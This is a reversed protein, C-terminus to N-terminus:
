THRRFTVVTLIVSKVLTDFGDRLLFTTGIGEGSYGYAVLNINYISTSVGAEFAQATEDGGASM